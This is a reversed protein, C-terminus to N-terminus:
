SENQSCRRNGRSRPYPSLPLCTASKAVFRPFPRRPSSVPRRITLSCVPRLVVSRGDSGMPRQRLAPKPTVQLAHFHLEVWLQLCPDVLKHDFRSISGFLQSLVCHGSVNRLKCCRAFHEIATVVMQFTAPHFRNGTILKNGMEAFLAARSQGSPLQAEYHHPSQRRSARVACGGRSPPSKLLGHTTQLTQDVNCIRNGFPNSGGPLVADGRPPM